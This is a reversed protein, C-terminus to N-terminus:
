YSITFCVWGCHSSMWSNGWSLWVAQSPDKAAADIIKSCNFNYIELKKKDPFFKKGGYYFDAFVTGIEASMITSSDDFGDYMKTGTRFFYKQQMKKQDGTGTNEAVEKELYLQRNHLLTMQHLLNDTCIFSDDEVFVHYKPIRSNQACWRLFCIKWDIKYFRRFPYDPNDIQQEQAKMSTSNNAETRNIRFLNEGTPPSNAYNIFDPHRKM